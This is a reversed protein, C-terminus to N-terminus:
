QLPGAPSALSGRRGFVFSRGDRTWDAGLSTERGGWGDIAIAVAGLVVLDDAVVGVPLCNQGRRGTM